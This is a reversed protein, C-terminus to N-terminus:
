LVGGSSQKQKKYLKSLNVLFFNNVEKIRKMEYLFTILKSIVKM